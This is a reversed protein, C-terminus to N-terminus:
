NIGVNILSSKRKREVQADRPIQFTSTSQVCNTRADKAKANPNLMEPVGNAFTATL